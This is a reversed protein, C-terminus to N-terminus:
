QWSRSIMFEFGPLTSSPTCLVVTRLRVQVLFIRLQFSTLPLRTTLAPIETVHFKSDRDPPWSNSGRDPRVHPAYYKQGLGYKFRFYGWSILFSYSHTNVTVEDAHAAIFCGEDRLHWLCQSKWAGVILLAPCQIIHHNTPDSREPPLWLTPDDTGTTLLHNHGPFLVNRSTTLM